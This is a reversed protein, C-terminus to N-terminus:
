GDLDFANNYSADASGNFFVVVFGDLSSSGIGGDYLEVFELIDTGPTDADTENIFLEAGPPGGCQNDAAPTPTNQLYGATNRLGGDGNPCRQNSHNDKDGAGDENVQPQGPNLLVLLGADDADNTDYVIADILGTTTVPTGNPFDAADGQYLAVADAGNQLGNSGFVIDPTPSVGANGLVFYGSADSTFGDLDFANYSVDGNGNYFVVVWGDLPSSGIGGDYLEVFELTDTGPTDADTENILLNVSPAAFTQGTNCAGFTNPAPTAWTFHEYATGTGTLQLSDGVPTSFPEAVGIDTSGLGNAPGDAATFSGEYSLFQVVASTSDVLAIGDPAGNQIGNTPYTVDIVGFGGCVDPITGTLSTTNYSFGGNGNYLVISWGSLDTGASGAIEIAEGVDTGTNDYHIENIFVTTQAAAPIAAALVVLAIVTTKVFSM